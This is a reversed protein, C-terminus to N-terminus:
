RSSYNQSKYEDKLIEYQVALVSDIDSVGYKKFLRKEERILFEDM